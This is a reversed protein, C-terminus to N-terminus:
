APYGGCECKLFKSSKGMYNKRHLRDEFVGNKISDGAIVITNRHYLDQSRNINDDKSSSKITAYLEEKKKKKVEEM